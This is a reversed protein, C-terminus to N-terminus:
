PGTLPLIQEGTAPTSVGLDLEFSLTPYMSSAHKQQSLFWQTIRWLLQGGSHSNQPTMQWGNHLSVFYEMTPVVRPGAETM